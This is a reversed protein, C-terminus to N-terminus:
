TKKVDNGRDMRRLVAFSSLRSDLTGRSFPFGIGKDPEGSERPRRRSEGTRGVPLCALRPIVFGSNDSLNM